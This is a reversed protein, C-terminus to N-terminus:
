SASQQSPLLGYKRLEHRLQNYNLGLAAAARRQNHKSQILADALLSRAHADLSARYDGDIPVAARKPQPEPDPSQKPVKSAAAPPRFPSAFPDFTVSDIANEPETWHAVAREVVNKLERVNGPWAYTDMAAMARDSFGPFTPWQLSKAMGLGFHNALLPIDGQRARLPPLTLVDFALRDLLDERFRGAAAASPLDVNTAAVIRVSVKLTETGGLREFEGYEITRLIKEQLSLPTNGIEDLFISGGDALEFRGQRRRAAGTFAGAEVGFLEAELLTEPLAACNLKVFPGQWRPSLFHIRAASLEKGTGREG